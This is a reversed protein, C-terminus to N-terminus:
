ENRMEIWDLGTKEVLKKALLKRHCAGVNRELCMVATPVRKVTDAVRLVSDSNALLIENYNREFESYDGSLWFKERVPKPVGLSRELHYEIGVNKCTNALTRAHFGYTRSMPVDRIDALTKIGTKLLLNLFADISLQQYGVSYVALNAVPMERKFIGGARDSRRTFWPDIAYVHNILEDTSRGLWQAHLEDVHRIVSSRAENAQRCGEDTLAFHTDDSELALGSEVLATLDRYMAFSFPGQRYPVFDYKLSNAVDNASSYLFMLKVLRLREISGGAKQVFRLLVNKRPHM